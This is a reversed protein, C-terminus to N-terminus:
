MALLSIRTGPGQVQYADMGQESFGRFDTVSILKTNGHGLAHDVSRVHEAGGM